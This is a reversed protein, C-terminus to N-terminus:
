VAQKIPGTAEVGGSMEEKLKALHNMVMTMNVSDVRYATRKAAENPSIPAVQAVKLAQIPENRSAEAASIPENRSAEAAPVVEEALLTPILAPAPIESPKEVRPRLRAVAEAKSLAKAEKMNRHMSREAEAAYRRRLKGELSDDLLALNEAGARSRGSVPTLERDLRAYEGVQGECRKVLTDRAERAVRRAEAWVERFRPALDTLTEPDAEPDMGNKAVERDLDNAIEVCQTLDYFAQDGLLEIGMLNVTRRYTAMGWTGSDADTRKDQWAERLWRCGEACSRLMAVAVSPESDIRRVADAVYEARRIDWGAKANLTAMLLHHDDNRDCRNLRVYARFARQAVREALGGDPALEDIWVREEAAFADVNETPLVLVESAMGHKYANARSAAKGEPTTPGTSKQANAKNAAAQKETCSM